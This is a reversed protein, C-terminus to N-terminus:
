KKEILETVANVIELKADILFPENSFLEKMKDREEPEYFRVIKIDVIDTPLKAPGERIGRDTLGDWMAFEEHALDRRRHIWEAITKTVGKGNLEITVKTALNTIQVSTRLHLIQKLVDSHAQIWGKIKKTTEPYKETEISSIACNKRVLERLDEAKKQLIKIQKLAEILIM